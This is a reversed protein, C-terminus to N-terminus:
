TPYSKRNSGKRRKDICIYHNPTNYVVYYILVVHMYQINVDINFKM